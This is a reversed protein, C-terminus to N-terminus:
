RVHRAQWRVPRGGRTSSPASAAAWRRRTGSGPRRTSPSALQLPMDPAPHQAHCPGSGLARLSSLDYKRVYQSGHKILMRIATPAQRTAQSAALSRLACRTSCTSRTTRFWRRWCEIRWGHEHMRCAQWYRGADPYTPVSEFLLTTAGSSLPGYTVDACPSQAALARAAACSHGTIWGVDAACGFVEGDQYGFVNQAAHSARRLATLAAKFTSTVYTLYGGTSHALGQLATVPM